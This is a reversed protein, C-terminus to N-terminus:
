VRLFDGYYHGKDHLWFVDHINSEYKLNFPWHPWPRTIKQHQHICSYNVYCVIGGPVIIAALAYQYSTAVLAYQYSM